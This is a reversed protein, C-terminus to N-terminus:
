DEQENIEEGGQEMNEQAVEGSQELNEQAIEESLVKNFKERLTADIVDFYDYFKPTTKLLRTRGSKESTIFDMEKLKTIHDYAKNGRMPIIEAQMTPNKYAILALTEQAPKDLETDKLLKTTLHLYEKRINLKYRKGQEIIELASQKNAYEQILEALAQKVLEVSEIKCFEAIEEPSVLRGLTFLVAEVKNKLEQM